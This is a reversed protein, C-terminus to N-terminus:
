YCRRRNCRKKLHRRYRRLLRYGKGTFELNVHDEPEVVFSKIWNWMKMIAPLKNDNEAMDMATKLTSTLKPFLAPHQLAYKPVMSSKIKLPTGNPGQVYVNDNEVDFAIFGPDALTYKFSDEYGKMNDIYKERNKIDSPIAWNVESPKMEKATYKEQLEKYPKSRFKDLNLTDTMSDLAEKGSSSPEEYTATSSAAASGITDGTAAEVAEKAQQAGVNQAAADAKVLETAAKKDGKSMLGQVFPVGYQYLGYGAALGAAGLGIRTLWKAWNNKRHKGKQWEKLYDEPNATIDRIIMIDKLQDLVQEREQYDGRNYRDSLERMTAEDIVKANVKSDVWSPIHTIGFKVLNKQYERRERELHSKDLPQAVQKGNPMYGGLLYKRLRKRHSHKRTKSTRRRKKSVVM